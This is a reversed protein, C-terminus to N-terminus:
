HAAHQGAQLRREARPDRPQGRPGGRVYADHQGVLIEDRHLAAQSLLIWMEVDNKEVRLDIPAGDYTELTLGAAEFGLVPVTDGYSPAFLDYGGYNFYGWDRRDFEDALAKGFVDDIWGLITGSVEHYVPDDNPPFFSRYYGFEHADVFLSPPYTRLLEVKGDTEPQTRAFWDRNMDVGYANRRTDAERGDPNQIPLVFVVANDLIQQAACDTRDALDYLVELSADAGSEESGHVNGAVYLFAPTAGALTAVEDAPTNPDRIRLVAQRIAELGSPTVNEPDGVVAYRLPRGEASTAYTGSIVRDSAQDIADLYTWAEDTTVEREGLQFGLVEEATPVVGAYVAPADIPDCPARAASQVPAPLLAFCLAM